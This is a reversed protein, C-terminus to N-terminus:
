RWAWHLNWKMPYGGHKQRKNRSGKKAKTALAFSEELNLQCGQVIDFAPWIILTLGLGCTQPLATISNWKMRVAHRPTGLVEESWPPWSLWLLCETNTLIPGCRTKIGEENCEGMSAYVILSRVQTILRIVVKDFKEYLKHVLVELTSGETPNCPIYLPSASRLWLHFSISTASLHSM